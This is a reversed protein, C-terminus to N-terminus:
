FYRSKIIVHEDLEEIESTELKNKTIPVVKRKLQTRSNPFNFISEEINFKCSENSQVSAIQKRSPPKHVLNPKKLISPTRSCIRSESKGVVQLRQKQSSESAKPAKPDLVRRLLHRKEKLNKPSQFLKITTTKQLPSTFKSNFGRFILQNNSLLLLHLHQSNSSKHM